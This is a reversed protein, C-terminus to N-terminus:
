LFYTEQRMSGSILFMLLFTQFQFYDDTTLSFSTYIIYAPLLATQAQMNTALSKDYLLNEYPKIKYGYLPM